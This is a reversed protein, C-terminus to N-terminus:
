KLKILNMKGSESTTVCVLEDNNSFFLGNQHMFSVPLGEPLFDFTRKKSYTTYFVSFFHQYNSGGFFKDPTHYDVSNYIVKGEVMPNFGPPIKRVAPLWLDGGVFVPSFGKEVSVVSSLFLHWGCAPYFLKPLQKLASFSLCYGAIPWFGEHAKELSDMSISGGSRPNYGNTETVADLRLLGDVVPNFWEPVSTVNITLSGTVVPSFGNPIQKLHTLSLDGIITPTFGEPLEEEKGFEIVRQDKGNIPTKGFFEKETLDFKLSFAKAQSNLSRESM